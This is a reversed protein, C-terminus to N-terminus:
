SAQRRRVEAEFGRLREVLTAALEIANAKHELNRQFISGSPGKICIHFDLPAAHGLICSFAQNGDIALHADPRVCYPSKLYAKMGGCSYEEETTVLFYLDGATREQLQNLLDVIMWIIATGVRDDHAGRAYIRHDMIRGAWPS